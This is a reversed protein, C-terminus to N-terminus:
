SYNVMHSILYVIRCRLDLNGDGDDEKLDLKNSGSAGWHYSPDGRGDRWRLTMGSQSKGVDFYLQFSTSNM